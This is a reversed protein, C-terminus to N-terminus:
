FSLRLPTEHNNTVQLGQSSASADIYISTKKANLEDPWTLKLLRCSSLSLLLMGVTLHQLVYSLVHMTVYLCFKCFDVIHAVLVSQKILFGVGPPRWYM